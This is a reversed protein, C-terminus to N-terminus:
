APGAPKAVGAESAPQRGPGTCQGPANKKCTLGMKKLVWHIAQPTCKLGLAERLEGLTSDPKQAVQKKLREGHGPELRAKRGARHYLSGITGIRKRQSLLKKVLGLSVGFRAAAEGRTSEGRDYVGVIRGRPDVSITKIGMILQV